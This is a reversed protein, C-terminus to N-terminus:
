VQIRRKSDAYVQNWELVRYSKRLGTPWFPDDKILKDVLESDKAELMWMGGANQGDADKLPGASIFNKANRELFTLHEAMHTQRVEIGAEPNDEFFVVFIM